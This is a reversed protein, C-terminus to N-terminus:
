TKKLLWTHIHSSSWLSSCRPISAKLSRHQLLSKLTGQVALLDFWDIRFSILGSYENSSRFSFTFSWYKPWKFHLASDSFFIRLALPSPPSLPHSPQIADGVPLFHTQPLEPLQHHVRFGPMSCDMPTVFLWVLSLSQVAIYSYSLFRLDHCRTGDSWPFYIHFCHWVKKKPAGFDSCITVAAM